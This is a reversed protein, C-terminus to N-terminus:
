QIPKSCFSLYLITWRLLFCLAVFCFMGFLSLYPDKIVLVFCTPPQFSHHQPLWAMHCHKAPTSCPGQLSPTWQPKLWLAWHCFERVVRSKEKNSYITCFTCRYFFVLPFFGFVFVFSRALFSFFLSGTKFNIKLLIELLWNFWYIHIFM